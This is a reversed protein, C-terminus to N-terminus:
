EVRIRDTDAVCIRHVELCFDMSNAETDTRNRAARTQENTVLKGWHAGVKARVDRDCVSVYTPDIQLQCCQGQAHDDMPLMLSSPVAFVVCMASFHRAPFRSQKWRGVRKAEVLVM